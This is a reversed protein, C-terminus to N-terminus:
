SFFAAVAPYLRVKILDRPPEARRIETPHHQAWHWLHTNGPPGVHNWQRPPVDRWATSKEIAKSQTKEAVPPTKIQPVAYFEAM